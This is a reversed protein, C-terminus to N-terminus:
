RKKGTLVGVLLSIANLGRQWQFREYAFTLKPLVLNLSRSATVGVITWDAYDFPSWYKKYHKTRVSYQNVCPNTTELGVFDTFSMIVDSLNSFWDIVFSLPIAELAWQAPNVLGLRNALWLNPNSVRVEVSQSVSFRETYRAPEINPNRDRYSEASASGRIREWPFESTLAKMASQIDGVLPAIGYSYGLWAGALDRSTERLSGWKMRQVRVKRQRGKRDRFRKVVTREYYPVGLTRAAEGFRLKRIQRAATLAKEVLSVVMGWTERREATLTAGLSAADTLQGVMRKYADNYVADRNLGAEGSFSNYFVTYTAAPEPDRGPSCNSAELWARYNTMRCMLNYPRVQREGTLQVYMAPTDVLINNYSSKPLM